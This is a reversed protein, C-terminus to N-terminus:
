PMSSLIGKLEAALNSLYSEKIQWLISYDIGIYDHVIRNRFERINAWQINPHRLKFSDPLKNVAEGIIEFNRVVADVTKQDSVFESFTLGDTYELIRQISLLIDELLLEFSRKSM